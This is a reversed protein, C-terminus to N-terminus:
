AELTVLAITLFRFHRTAVLFFVVKFTLIFPNSEINATQPPCNLSNRCAQAVIKGTNMAFNHNAVFFARKHILPSKRLYHDPAPEFRRCM